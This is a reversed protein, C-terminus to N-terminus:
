VRIVCMKYLQWQPYHTSLVDLLQKLYKLEKGWRGRRESVWWRM